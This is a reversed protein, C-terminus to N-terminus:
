VRGRRGALRASQEVNRRAPREAANELGAAACNVPAFNQRWDAWALGGLLRGITIQPRACELSSVPLHAFQIM